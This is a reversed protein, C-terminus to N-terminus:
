RESRETTGHAGHRGEGANGVVGSFVLPPESTQLARARRGDEVFVLDENRLQDLAASVTWPALHLGDAIERYSPPVGDLAQTVRIFALVREDITRGPVSAVEVIM